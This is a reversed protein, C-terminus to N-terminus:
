NSAVERYAYLTKVVSSYVMSQCCGEYAITVRFAWKAITGVWGEGGISPNTSLTNAHKLQAIKLECM